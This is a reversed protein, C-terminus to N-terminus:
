VRKCVIIDNERIHNIFFSKDSDIYLTSLNYWRPKKYFIWGYPSSQENLFEIKGNPHRENYDNLFYYFLQGFEMDAPAKARFNTYHQDEKKKQFEFSIVLMNKLKDEDPDDVEEHVPYFWRAYIKLPISVARIFTAYIFYALVFFLVSSAIYFQYGERNFMSFVMVFGMFAFAALVITFIVEFWFSDDAGSWKLYRRMYRIHLFGAALFIFQCILLTAFPSLSRAAVGMLGASAAILTVLLLYIITPKRYPAFSGRARSIYVGLFTMLSLGAFGAIGLMRLMEQSFFKNM